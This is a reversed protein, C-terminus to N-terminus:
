DSPPPPVFKPVTVEEYADESPLSEPSSSSTPSSPPPESLDIQVQSQLDDLGERFKRYTAGLSRAVEPLRSGFLLIGIVLLIAMESMSMGFM